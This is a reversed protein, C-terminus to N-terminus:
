YQYQDSRRLIQEHDIGQKVTSAQKPQPKSEQKERVKSAQEVANTKTAAAPAHYVQHIVVHQTKPQQHLKQRKLRNHERLERAQERQIEIKEKELKIRQEELRNREREALETHYPQHIIVLSHIYELHQLLTYANEEVSCYSQTLNKLSSRLTSISSELMEVYHLYPYRSKDKNSMIIAILIKNFFQENYSYNDSQEFENKYKKRLTKVDSYLNFYAKHLDLYKYIITLFTHLQSISVELKKMRNLMFIENHKIELEEIRENLNKKHNKLHALHDELTRLYSYICKENDLPLRRLLAEDTPCYIEQQWVEMLHSYENHTHQYSNEAEFLIQDNSKKFLWQGLKCLGYGCSAAVTAIITAKAVTEFSDCHSEAKSLQITTSSILFIILLWITYKSSM